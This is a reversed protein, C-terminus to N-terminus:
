AANRLQLVHDAADGIVAQEAQRDGNVFHSAGAIDDAAAL